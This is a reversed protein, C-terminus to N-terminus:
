SILQVDLSYDLHVMNYHLSSSLLFVGTKVFHMYKNIMYNHLCVM